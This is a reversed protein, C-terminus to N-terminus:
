SKRDIVYRALARLNDARLGFPAVHHIAQDVLREAQDRAREVGLISVFTAKGRAADKAVAKGTDEVRGEVDLLDDAIQFALGLDHAYGRLATRAEHSAKGLVAGAEAAAQILAGTKMKQMRTVAGLDFDDGAAEAALDSMQGGVMGHPGSAQALLSVLELRVRPDDHTEAGSLLEFAYTLLADGALVATAEDFAKHVTPKGRRLDDDDMAPLDDHVLSYCHVCEVAAAVRLACGRKVDFLGATELVLFPRLRKGGSMSAYRMAEMLKAEPGTAPPLLRDLAKEIEAAADSLAAGLPSQTM